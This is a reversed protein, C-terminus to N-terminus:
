ALSEAAGLPKGARRYQTAAALGVVLLLAGVVGLAQVAGTAEAVDDASGFDDGLSELLSGVVAAAALLLAGAACVWLDLRFRFTVWRWFPSVRGTPAGGRMSAAHAAAWRRFAVKKVLSGATAGFLAAAGLGWFAWATPYGQLDDSDVAGVAWSSVALMGVALVAELALWGVHWGYGIPVVQSVNTASPLVRGRPEGSRAMSGRRDIDGIWLAAAGVLLGVITLWWAATGLVQWAGGEPADGTSALRAFYVAGGGVVVLAIVTVLVLGFAWVPGGRLRRWAAGGVPVEVDRPLTSPEDNM